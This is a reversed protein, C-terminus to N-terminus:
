GDDVMVMVMVMVMMMVMMMMMMMMSLDLHTCHTIDSIEERQTLGDEIAEGFESLWGWFLLLVLLGM